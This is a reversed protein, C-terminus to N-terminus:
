DYQQVIEIYDVKETRHKDPFGTGAKIGVVWNDYTGLPLNPDVTRLTEIFEGVTITRKGIPLAMDIKTNSM